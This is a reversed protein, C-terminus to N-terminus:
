LGIQTNISQIIKQSNSIGRSILYSSFNQQLDLEEWEMVSLYQYPPSKTHLIYEFLQVYFQKFEFANSMLENYIEPKLSNSLDQLLFYLIESDNDSLLKKALFNLNKDRLFLNMTLSFGEELVSCIDMSYHYYKQIVSDLTDTNEVKKIVFELLNREILIIEEINPFIIAEKNNGCILRSKTFFDFYYSKILTTKRRFSIQIYIPYTLYGHFAVKKRKEYEIIKYNVIYQKTM